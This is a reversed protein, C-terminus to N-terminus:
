KESVKVYLGHEAFIECTDGPKLELSLRGCLIKDPRTPTFTWEVRGDPLQRKTCIVNENSKEPVLEGSNKIEDPTM